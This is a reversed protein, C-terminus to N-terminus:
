KEDGVKDLIELIDDYNTRELRGSAFMLCLERVEKIISHLRINEQEVVRNTEIINQIDDVNVINPIPKLELENM